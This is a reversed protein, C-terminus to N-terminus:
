AKIAKLKISGNNLVTRTVRFGKRRLQRASLTATYEANLKTLKMGGLREAIKRGESGYNDYILRYGNGKPNEVVGIEYRAGPVRIAHVGKGFLKPDYGNTVAADTTDWDNMFKGYWKWTKQGEKFELGLTDCANKLVDLNTIEVEVNAVHSM